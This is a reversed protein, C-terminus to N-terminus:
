TSCIANAVMCIGGQEAPLYYIAIHNGLAVEALLDWSRHQAEIGETTSDVLKRMALSLNRIVEEHAHIGM